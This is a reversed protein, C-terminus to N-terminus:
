ITNEVAVFYTAKKKKCSFKSLKKTSFYVMYDDKLLSLKELNIMFKFVQPSDGIRVKLVNNALTRSEQVQAIIEQGNGEFVLYNFSPSKTPGSSYRWLQALVAAFNIRMMPSLASGTGLSISKTSSEFLSLLFSAM